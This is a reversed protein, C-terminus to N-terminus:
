PGEAHRVATRDDAADVRERPPAAMAIRRRLEAHIARADVQRQDVWIAHMSGVDRTDRLTYSLRAAHASFGREFHAWELASWAVTSSGLETRVELGDPQMVWVVDGGEDARRALVVARRMLTCGFVFLMASQVIPGWQRVRWALYGPAVSACLLVVALM